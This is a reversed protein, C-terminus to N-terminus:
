TNSNSGGWRRFTPLLLQNTLFYPLSGSSQGLNIFLPISAHKRLTGEYTFHCKELVRVSEKNFSRVWAAVVETDRESFMYELMAMLAETAYGNNRRNAAVAYELEKYQAYRNMDGFVVFGILRQEDKHIVARMEPNKKWSCIVSQSEEINRYSSVGSLRLRPDLCIKYLEEADDEQWCRLLLRKTEILEALKERKWSGDNRFIINCLILFCLM